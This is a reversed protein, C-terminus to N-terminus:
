VLSELAAGIIAYYIAFPQNPFMVKFATDCTTHSSFVPLAAMDFLWFSGDDKVIFDVRCLGSCNLQNIINEAAKMIKPTVLNDFLCFSYEENDVEIKSLYDSSKSVQVPNLAIAGNKTVLVPVGIETGKIYEQILIDQNYTAFTTKLKQPLDKLNSVLQVGRASCEINPKIIYNKFSKLDLPLSAKPNYITTKPINCFQESLKYYKYKDQLLSLSYSNSTLLHINHLEAFNPIFSRRNIDLGIQATSYLFSFKKNLKIKNLFIDGIFTSPNNYFYYSNTCNSFAFDLEKMEEDELYGSAAETYKKNGNIFIIAYEDKFELGLNILKMIEKKRDLILFRWIIM